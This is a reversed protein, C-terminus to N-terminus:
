KKGFCHVEGNRDIRKIRTENKFSFEMVWLSGDKGILGGSPAWGKSSKYITESTGDPKFKKVKRAGYLAVYTNKERDSWVGMVYHHDRVWNLVSRGEKLKDSLLRVKGNPEVKKLQLYDVVYVEGAKGPVHLWRIDTFRHSSHAQIVGKTTRRKLIEQEGWKEAWYMTGARDRRLTNNVPFGKTDQITKSLEGIRSLCWIYYGWQDTAEGEYWIHEGYLNDQEDIYLEHTHVSEVALVHKGSPTIKWVQALDTYYVNGQSDMVIGIGPHAALQGIGLILFLSFVIEKMVV